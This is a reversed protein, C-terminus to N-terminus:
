TKEKKVRLARAVRDGLPEPDTTKRSSLRPAGSSAGGLEEWEGFLDYVATDTGDPASSNKQMVQVNIAPPLSADDGVIAAQYPNVGFRPLPRPGLPPVNVEENPVCPVQVWIRVIPVAGITIEVDGSPLDRQEFNTMIASVQTQVIAVQQFFDADAGSAVPYESPLLPGGFYDFYPAAYASGPPDAQGISSIVGPVPGGDINQVVPGLPGWDVDPHAESLADSNLSATVWFTRALSRRLSAIAKNAFNDAPAGGAVSIRYPPLDWNLGVEYYAVRGLSNTPGESELVSCVVQAHTSGLATEDVNAFPYLGNSPWARNLAAGVGVPVELGLAERYPLRRTGSGTVYVGLSTANYPQRNPTWAFSSPTVSVPPYPYQPVLTPDTFAPPRVLMDRAGDLYDGETNGVTGGPHSLSFAAIVRGAGYAHPFNKNSSNAM